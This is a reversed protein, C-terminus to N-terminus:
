VAHDVDESDIVEDLLETGFANHTPAVADNMANIMNARSMMKIDMMKLKTGMLELDAAEAKNRDVLKQHMIKLASLDDAIDSNVSIGISVNNRLNSLLVDDSEQVTSFLHCIHGPPGDQLLSDKALPDKEIRKAIYSAWIYWTSEHGKYSNRHLDKLEKLLENVVTAATAGARDREEPRILVKEANTWHAKSSVNSSYPLIYLYIKIDHDDKTQLKCWNRLKAENISDFQFAKRAVPEYFSVFRNIDAINPINDSWSPQNTDDYIIEKKLHVFIKEWIDDTFTKLDTFKVCIEGIDTAQQQTKFQRIMIKFKIYFLETCSDEEDQSHSFHDNEIQASVYEDFGFGSM